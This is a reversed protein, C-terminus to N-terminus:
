TNICHPISERPWERKGLCKHALWPGSFMEFHFTVSVDWSFHKLCLGCCTRQQVWFTIQIMHNLGYFYWEIREIIEKLLVRIHIVATFSFPMWLILSLDYKEGTWTFAKYKNVRGGQNGKHLFLGIRNTAQKYLFLKDLSIFQSTNLSELNFDKNWISHLKALHWSIDM